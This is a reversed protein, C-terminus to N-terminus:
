YRGRYPCFSFFNFVPLWIHPFIANANYVIVIDLPSSWYVVVGPLDSFLLICENFGSSLLTDRHQQLIALGVYLPFSADGLLLQDWLHLIKPLPFVDSFLEVLSSRIM